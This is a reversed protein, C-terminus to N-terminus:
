TFIKSGSPRLKSNLYTLKFFRVETKSFVYRRKRYFTGGNKDFHLYM